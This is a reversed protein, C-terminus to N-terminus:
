GARGAWTSGPFAPLGSPRRRGLGDHGADEGGHRVAHVQDAAGVQFGVVRDALGEPGLRRNTRRLVGSRARRVAGHGQRVQQQCQGDNRDPAGVEDDDLAREGLQRRQQQRGHAEQEAGQGPQEEDLARGDGPAVQDGVAHGDAGHEAQQEQGQAVVERGAEGRQQHLRLDEERQQQDGPQLVLTHADVWSPPSASAVSPMARMPQCLKLWVCVSTVGRPRPSASAAASHQARPLTTERLMPWTSMNPKM